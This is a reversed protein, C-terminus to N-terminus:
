RMRTKYIKGILFQSFMAAHGKTLDYVFLEVVTGMEDADEM